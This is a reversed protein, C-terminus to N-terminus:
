KSIILSQNSSSNSKNIMYVYNNDILENIRKQRNSIYKKKIKIFAFILIFLFIFCFILLKEKLNKNNEYNNKPSSINLIDKYFGIIKNDFSFTFLYKKYFLKGFTFMSEISRFIILFFIKDGNIAFLDKYTLEFIYDLENSKFYLIPFTNKIQNYDNKNCWIMYYLGNKESRVREKFCISKNYLNNFFENEINNLYDTSGEILNINLSFKCKTTKLIIENNNNFFYIKDFIIGWLNVRYDEYNKIRIKSVTSRFENENYKNPRYKHPPLGVVLYGENENNIDFLGNRNNNTFEFTWYTSEIYDKKKLQIIWSEYFDLSIPLQLGIHLCSFGTIPFNNYFETNNPPKPAYLFTINHINKIKNIELNFDTYVYFTEKAFCMNRFHSFFVNYESTNIFTSSLEKNYISPLQCISNDLYSGYDESDFFAYIKSKPSGIYLYSYMENPLWYNLFDENSFYKSNNILTFNNPHFTNIPFVLYENSIILLSFINLFFKYNIVYKFLIM